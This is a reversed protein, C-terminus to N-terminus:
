DFSKGEAGLEQSVRALIDESIQIHGIVDVKAQYLYQVQLSSLITRYLSLPFARMLSLGACFEGVTVIAAAHIGRVHNLNRKKYPLLIEVGENSLKTVRFDHPANFPVVFPLLRNLIFLKSSSPNQLINQVFQFVQKKM